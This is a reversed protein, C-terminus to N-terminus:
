FGGGGNFKNAWPPMPGGNDSNPNYNRAGNSKSPPPSSAAPPASTARPGSSRAPTTAGKGPNGQVHKQVFYNNLMAGVWDMDGQLADLTKVAARLPEAEDLKLYPKDSERIANAESTLEKGRALGEPTKSQYALGAMAELQKIRLADAMLPTVTHAIPIIAGTLQRARNAMEDLSMKNQDDIAAQATERNYQIDLVRKQAEPDMATKVKHIVGKSVLEQEWRALDESRQNALSVQTLAGGSFLGATRLFAAGETGATEKIAAWTGSSAGKVEEWFEALVGLNTRNIGAKAPNNFDAGNEMAKQFEQSGQGFMEGLFARRLVPDSISQAKAMIESFIAAQTKAAGNANNISIGWKQFMFYLEESNVRAKGIKEALEDMAAAAQKQDGGSRRIENTVGQYFDTSVGALKAGRIIEASMKGLKYLVIGMGALALTTIGIPNFILKMITGLM